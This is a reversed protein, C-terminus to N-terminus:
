FDLLPEKGGATDYRLTEVQSKLATVCLTERVTKM